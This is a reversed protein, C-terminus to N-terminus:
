LNSLVDSEKSEPTMDESRLQTDKTSQNEENETEPEQYSIMFVSALILAMGCITAFSLKESYIAYFIIASFM